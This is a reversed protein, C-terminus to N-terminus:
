WDGHNHATGMGGGVCGGAGSSRLWGDHMRSKRDLQNASEDLIQALAPTDPEHLLCQCRTANESELLKASYELASAKPALGSPTPEFGMNDCSVVAAALSANGRKQCKRQARKQDSRSADRARGGSHSLCGVRAQALAPRRWRPGNAVRAGCM